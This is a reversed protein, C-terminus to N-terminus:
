SAQRRTRFAGPRGGNGAPGSSRPRPARRAGASAAGRAASRSAGPPPARPTIAQGGGTARLPRGNGLAFQAKELRQPAMEPRSAASRAGRSETQGPVRQGVRLLIGRTSAGAWSRAPRPDKWRCGMNRARRRMLGERGLREAVPVGAIGLVPARILGAPAELASTLGASAVESQPVPEVFGSLSAGKRFPPNRVIAISCIYFM